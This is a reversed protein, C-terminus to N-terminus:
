IYHREKGRDVNRGIRWAHIALVTDAAAEKNDRRASRNREMADNCIASVPDDGVGRPAYLKRLGDGLWLVLKTIM